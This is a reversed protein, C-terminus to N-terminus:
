YASVNTCTDIIGQSLCFQVTDPISLVQGNIIENIVYIRQNEVKVFRELRSNEIITFDELEQEQYFTQVKFYPKLNDLNWVETYGISGSKESTRFASKRYDIVLEEMGINDFNVKEIIYGGRSSAKNDPLIFSHYISDKYFAIRIQDNEEDPYIVTIHDSSDAMYKYDPIKDLLDLSPLIKYQLSDPALTAYDVTQVQGCSIFYLCFVFLSPKM